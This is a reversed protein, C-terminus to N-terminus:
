YCCKTKKWPLTGNLITSMVVWDSLRQSSVRRDDKRLYAIANLIYKIEVDVALWLKIGFENPTNMSDNMSNECREATLLFDKM